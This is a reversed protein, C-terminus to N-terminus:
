TVILITEHGNREVQFCMGSWGPVKVKLVVGGITNHM